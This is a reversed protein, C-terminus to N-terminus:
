LGKKQLYTFFWAKRTTIVEKAYENDDNFKFTGLQESPQESISTEQGLNIFVSVACCNLLLFKTKVECVWGSDM